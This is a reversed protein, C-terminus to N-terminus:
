QRQGEGKMLKMDKMTLPKHNMTRLEHLEHRTAEQEEAKM